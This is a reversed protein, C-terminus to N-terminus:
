SMCLRGSCLSMRFNGQHADNHRCVYNLAVGRETHMSAQLTPVIEDNAPVISAEETSLWGHVINYQHYICLM